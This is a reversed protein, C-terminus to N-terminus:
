VPNLQVQTGRDKAVHLIYLRSQATLSFAMAHAFAKMSADSFDTPHIITKIPFQTV